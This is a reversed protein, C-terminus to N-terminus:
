RPGLVERAEDLVRKEEASLSGFGRENIKDLIRDVEVRLHQRSSAASVVPVSKGSLNVSYAQPRAAAKGAWRPAEITPLSLRAGRLIFAQYFVWGGALGGLHASHAIWGNPGGPLEDWLFGVLDIGGAIAVMWFPKMTVPIVFFVLFTIPRSPNLCAFVMLYAMVIGSAGVVQGPRNYNVALWFGASILASFVTLMILKRPGLTEELQRGMFFVGLGNLLLHTFSGHLLGYSLLTWVYGNRIGTGSLASFQYYSGLGPFWRELLNQLVFV